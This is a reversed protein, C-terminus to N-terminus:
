DFAAALHRIGEVAGTRAGVAFGDDTADAVRDLIGSQHRVVDVIDIWVAGARRLVVLHFTQAHQGYEALAGLADRNGGVFGYDAM